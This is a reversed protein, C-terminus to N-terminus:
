FTAQYADVDDMRVDATPNPDLSCPGVRAREVDNGLTYVKM